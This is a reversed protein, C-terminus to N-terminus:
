DCGIKQNLILDRDLPFNNTKQEIHQALEPVLMYLALKKKSSTTTSHIIVIKKLVKSSLWKKYSLILTPNENTLKFIVSKQVKM